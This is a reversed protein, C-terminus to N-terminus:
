TKILFTVTLSSISRLRGSSFAGLVTNLFSLFFLANFFEHFWVFKFFIYYFFDHFRVFNFFLFKRKNFFIEQVGCAVESGSRKLIHWFVNIKDTKSTFFCLSNKSKLVSHLNLCAKKQNTKAGFGWFLSLSCLLGKVSIVWHWVPMPMHTVIFDIFPFIM